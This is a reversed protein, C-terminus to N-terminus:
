HALVFSDIELACGSNPDYLIIKKVTNRAIVSIQLVKRWCLSSISDVLVLYFSHCTEPHQAYLAWDAGFRVGSKVIWPQKSDSPAPMNALPVKPRIEIGICFLHLAVHPWCTGALHGYNKALAESSEIVEQITRFYFREETPAGKLRPWEFSVLRCTQWIDSISVFSENKTTQVLLRSLHLAIAQPLHYTINALVSFVPHKAVNCSVNAPLKFYWSGFSRREELYMRCHVVPHQVNITM